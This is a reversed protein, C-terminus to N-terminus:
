CDHDTEKFLMRRELGLRWQWLYSSCSQGPDRAEARRILMTGAPLVRCDRSAWVPAPISAPLSRQTSARSGLAQTWAAVIRSCSFLMVLQLNFADDGTITKDVNATEDNSTYDNDPRLQEFTPGPPVM